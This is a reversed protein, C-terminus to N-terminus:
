SAPFHCGLALLSLVPDCSARFACALRGRQRRGGQAPVCLRKHVCLYVRSSELSFRWFFVAPGTDPFVPRCISPHISQERPSLCRYHDEKESPFWSALDRGEGHCVQILGPTGPLSMRWGVCPLGYGLHCCAM